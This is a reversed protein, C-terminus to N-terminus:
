MIIGVFEVPIDERGTDYYNFIFGVGGNTIYYGHYISNDKALWEEILEKRNEKWEEENIAGNTFITGKYNYVKEMLDQPEGFEEISVMNGTVLSITVGDEFNAVGSSGSSISEQFYLSILKEDAYTIFYSSDYFANMENELSDDYHLMAMQFLTENIQEELGKDNFDDGSLEIHPYKVESYDLFNAHDFKLTKEKIKYELNNSDIVIGSPYKDNLAYTEIHVDPKKKIYITSILTIVSLIMVISLIKKKM